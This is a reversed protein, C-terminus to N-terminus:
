CGVCLQVFDILERNSFYGSDYNGGAIEGILVVVTAQFTAISDSTTEAM